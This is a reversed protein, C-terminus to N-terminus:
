HDALREEYQRKRKAIQAARQAQTVWRTEAPLETKLASLKVLRTTVSPEVGSTGSLGQLRIMFIPNHLGGPDVWNYVGPDRLSLVYSISGDKDRQSQATTLSSQYRTVDRTIFWWDHAVISFYSADSPQLTVILADDDSLSADGYTGRQSVLGGLSSSTSPLPPLENLTGHAVKVYYYVRPQGAVMARAGIEAAEEDTRPPATPPDLRHAVLADAKQDWDSLTDRIFLFLTGSKTQIYNSRGAVTEPGLDLAFTGDPNYHLDKNTLVGLTETTEYDGVLSFSVNSPGGGIRRGEIRYHSQADIPIIRYVNDPNNGGWRSGPVAMGKWQHPQTYVHIVKPYNPDAVAKLAYNYTYDTLMDDFSAWAEPPPDNHLVRRWRLEVNERARAFEARAVIRLAQVDTETQDTTALPNVSAAPIKKAEM